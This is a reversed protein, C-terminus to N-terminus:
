YIWKENIFQAYEQIAGYIHQIIKTNHIILNATGYPLKNRNGLYKRSIPKENIVTKRLSSSPLDLTKLWYNEIQEKSYLDDYCNISLLIKEPKVLLSEILFKRFLLLMDKDSNVFKCSNRSKEGEAWYLMCGAMHLPDKMKAKKAGEQQYIKRQKLANEKNKKSGALQATSCYQKQKLFAIQQETLIIDRVWISVSSKACAIKKAIEKVSLGQKRLKRAELKKDLKM